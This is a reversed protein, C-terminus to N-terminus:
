CLEWEEEPLMPHTQRVLLKNRNLENTQKNPKLSLCISFIECSVNNESSKNIWCAISNM